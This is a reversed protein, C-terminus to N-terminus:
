KEQVVVSSCLKAIINPASNSFYNVTDDIYQQDVKLDLWFTLIADWVPSKDGKYGATKPLSVKMRTVNKKSYQSAMDVLEKRFDTLEVNSSKNMFIILKYDSVKGELTIIDEAIILSVASGDIFVKEDDQIDKYEKTAALSRMANTDEFWIEAIGDITDEFTLEDNYIPHSQVYTGVLPSRTVIEAHENKWYNQFKKYTLGEKKKIITIANIM